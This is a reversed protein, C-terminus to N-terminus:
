EADTDRREDRRRGAGSAAGSVLGIAARVGQKLAWAGVPAAAQARAGSPGDPNLIHSCPKQAELGANHGSRLDTGAFAQLVPVSVRAHVNWARGHLNEKLRGSSTLTLFITIACVIDHALTLAAPAPVVLSTQVWMSSAVERVPRFEECRRAKLATGGARVTVAAAATVGRATAAGVPGRAVAWLARAAAPPADEAEDLSADVRRVAWEMAGGAFPEADRAAGAAAPEASDVQTAWSLWRDCSVARTSPWLKRGPALCSLHGRGRGLEGARPAGGV